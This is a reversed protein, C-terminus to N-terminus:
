STVGLQKEIEDRKEASLTGNTVMDALGDTVDKQSDLRDIFPQTHEIFKAAREQAKVANAAAVDAVKITAWKKLPCFSAPGVFVASDMEVVAAGFADLGKARCRKWRWPASPCEHWEHQVCADCMKIRGQKVLSEESDPM